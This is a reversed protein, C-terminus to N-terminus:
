VRRAILVGITRSRLTIRAESLHKGDASSKREIGIMKKLCRSYHIHAVAKGSRQAEYVGCKAAHAFRPGSANEKRPIVRALTM